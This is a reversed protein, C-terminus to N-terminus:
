GLMNIDKSGCMDLMQSELTQKQKNHQATAIKRDLLRSKSLLHQATV